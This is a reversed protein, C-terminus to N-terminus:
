IIASKCDPKPVNSKMARRKPQNKNPNTRPILRIRSLPDKLPQIPRCPPKTPKHNKMFALKIAIGLSVGVQSTPGPPIEGFGIPPEM